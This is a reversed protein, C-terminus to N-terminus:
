MRMAVAVNLARVLGGSGRSPFVRDAAACADYGAGELALARGASMMAECDLPTVAIVAARELAVGERACMRALAEARAAGVTFPSDLERAPGKEDALVEVSVGREALQACAPAEAGSVFVAIEYGADAVWRLAALERESLADSEVGFAVVSPVPMFRGGRVVEFARQRPMAM